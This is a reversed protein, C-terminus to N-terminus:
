QRIIEFGICDRVLGPPLSGCRLVSNNFESLRFQSGKIRKAEDFAKRVQSWWILSGISGGPDVCIELANHEAEERGIGAEESILAVVDNFSTEGTHIRIDALAKVASLIMDDILNLQERRRLYDSKSLIDDWYFLWGDLAAHNIISRRVISPNEFIKTLFINQLYILMIDTSYDALLIPDSNSNTSGGGHRILLRKAEEDTMDVPSLIYLNDKNLAASIEILDIEPTNDILRNEGIFKRIRDFASMLDELNEVRAYSDDSESGGVTVEIQSRAKRLDEIVSLAYAELKEPSESILHRQYLLKELNERGIGIPDDSKTRSECFERFERIKDRAEEISKSGDPNLSAALTQLISDLEISKKAAIRCSAGVPETLNSTAAEITNKVKTMHEDIQRPNDMQKGLLHLILNQCYDVYITPYKKFIGIDEILVRKYAIDSLLIKLDLWRDFPLSDEDFCTLYREM